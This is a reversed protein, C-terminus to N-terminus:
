VGDLIETEQKRSYIYESRHDSYRLRLQTLPNVGCPIDILLYRLVEM